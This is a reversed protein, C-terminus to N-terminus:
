IGTERQAKIREAEMEFVDMDVDQGPEFMAQYLLGPEEKTGMCSKLTELYTQVAERYHEGVGRDEYLREGGIAQDDAAFTRNSHRLTMMAEDLVSKEVGMERLEELDKPDVHRAWDYLDSDLEAVTRSPRATSREGRRLRQDRVATLKVEAGGILAQEGYTEVVRDIEGPLEFGVYACGTSIGQSCRNIHGSGLVDRRDASFPQFFTGLDRLTVDPPLGTVHLTDHHSLFLDNPPTDGTIGLRHGLKSEATHGGLVGTWKNFVRERKARFVRVPRVGLKAANGGVNTSRVADSVLKSSPLRVLATTSSTRYFDDSTPPGFLAELQTGPPFMTQLVEVPTADAPLGTVKLISDAGAASKAVFAQVSLGEDEEDSSDSESSSTDEDSSSDDSSSDDEGERGKYKALMVPHEVLMRDGVCRSMADKANLKTAFGVFASTASAPSVDASRVGLVEAAKERISQGNMPHDAGLANGEDDVEPLLGTVYLYGRYREVFQESPNARDAAIAPRPRRESDPHRARREMQSYKSPHLNVAHLWDQVTPGHPKLPLVANSM